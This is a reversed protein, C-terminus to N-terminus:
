CGPLRTSPHSATGLLFLIESDSGAILQSACRGSMYVKLLITILEKKLKEDGKMPTVGM